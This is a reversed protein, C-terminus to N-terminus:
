SQEFRFPKLRHVYEKFRKIEETDFREWSHGPTSSDVLLSRSDQELISSVLATAKSKKDITEETFNGGLTKFSNKVKAVMWECVMDESRNNLDSFRLKGDTSQKGHYKVFHGSNFRLRMRESMSKLKVVEQFGKHVYKSATSHFSLFFLICNQKFFQIGEPDGSKTIFELTKFLFWLSVFLDGMNKLDDNKDELINELTKDTFFVTHSSDDIIENLFAEVETQSKSNLVSAFMKFDSIGYKEMAWCSLKEELYAESVTM